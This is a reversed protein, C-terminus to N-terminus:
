LQWQQSPPKPGHPLSQTRLMGTGGSGADLRQDRVPPQLKAFEELRDFEKDTEPAPASQIQDHVLGAQPAKKEENTAAPTVAPEPAAPFPVGRNKTERSIEQTRAADYSAITGPASATRYRLVGFSGVVIVGAAALGWRLRPWTLWRGLLPRVVTVTPEEAPLALAVGERCEGCRALHELVRGREPEPLARESFATLVDPDPHDVAVTGAKLREGVIKPVNEM